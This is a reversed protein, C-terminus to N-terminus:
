NSTVDPAGTISTGYGGEVVVVADGVRQLPVGDVTVGVSGASAVFVHNCDTLGPDGQRIVRLGDASVDPSGDTWTGVFNRPAHGPATCWGTVQDGVRCVNQFM